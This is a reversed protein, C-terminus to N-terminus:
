DTTQAGNKEDRQAPDTVVGSDQKKNRPPPPSLKLPEEPDDSEIIELIETQSRLLFRLRKVYADRHMRLTRLEEQLGIIEREAAIRIEEASIKAERLMNQREAEVLEKSTKLNEQSAVVSDRLSQELGQYTTLRAEFDRQQESMTAVQRQLDSVEDAVRELFARVEAPDFGRMVKTFEYKSIDLPSLNM